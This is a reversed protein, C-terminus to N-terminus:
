LLFHNENNYVCYIIEPIIISEDKNVDINKFIPMPPHLEGKNNFKGRYVSPIRAVYVNEGKNVNTQYCKCLSSLNNILAYFNNVPYFTCTLRLGYRSNLGNKFVEDRPANGCHLYYEGKTLDYDPRKKDIIKCIINRYIKEFQEYATIGEKRLKFRDIRYKATKDNVAGLYIYDNRNNKVILGNDGFLRKIFFNEKEYHDLKKSSDHDCLVRIYKETNDKYIFKIFYINLVDDDSVSISGVNVREYSKINNIDNYKIGNIDEFKM